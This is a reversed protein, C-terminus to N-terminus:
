HLVWIEDLFISGFNKHGAVWLGEIGEMGVITAAQLWAKGAAGSRSHCAILMKDGEICTIFGPIGISPRPKMFFLSAGTVKGQYSYGSHTSSKAIGNIERAL